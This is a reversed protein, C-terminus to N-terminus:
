ELDVAVENACGHLYSRAISLLVDDITRGDELPETFLGDGLHSAAESCALALLLPADSTDRDQTSDASLANPLTGDRELAAFTRLIARTEEHFGAAVLGRLAILTDRGWDLFWPFGAIVTSGDGRRALFSRSARELRATFEDAAPLAAPSPLADVRTTPEASVVLTVPIGSSLGVDFWGPSYADGEAILGRTAEVPHAARTWEPGPHFVGHSMFVRLHRDSAPEFAFGKAEPLTRVHATFHEETGENRTTEGHFSRDEIDVRVTLRVDVEDPLSPGIDAAGRTRELRVVTTNEGEPMFATMSLGVRRGDGANAAFRFRAPPGPEFALLSARGLYTLFGDANVWIRARKAFVHRESPASPHLNAALLADYKSE